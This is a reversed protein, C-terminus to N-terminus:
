DVRATLKLRTNPRVRLLHRTGVAGMPRAVHGRDSGAPCFGRQESRARQCLTPTRAAYRTCLASDRRMYPGGALTLQTAAYRAWEARSDLPATGYQRAISDTAALRRITATDSKAVAMVFSSVTGEIVQKQPQAPSRCAAVIVVTVALTARTLRRM